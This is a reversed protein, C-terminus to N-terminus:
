EPDDTVNHQPRGKPPQPLHKIHSVSEFIDTVLRTLCRDLQQIRRFENWPIQKDHTTGGAFDRSLCNTGTRTQVDGRGEAVTQQGNQVLSADIQGGLAALM